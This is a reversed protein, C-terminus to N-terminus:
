AFKEPEFEESSSKCWSMKLLYANKTQREGRCTAPFCMRMVKLDLLARWICCHIFKQVPTHIAMNWNLFGLKPIFVEAYLLKESFLVKLRPSPAIKKQSSWGLDWPHCKRCVEVSIRKECLSILDSCLKWYLLERLLNWYRKKLNFNHHCFEVTFYLLNM